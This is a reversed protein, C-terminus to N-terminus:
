AAATRRCSSTYAPDEDCSGLGGDLRWVTQVCALQQRPALDVSNKM